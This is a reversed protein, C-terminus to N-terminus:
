EELLQPGSLEIKRPKQEEPVVVGLHVKLIGDEMEGGTVEVNRALSYTKVFNKTSIGKLVYDREDRDADGTIKLTRGVVEVSVQDKNFGAVAVELTFETESRKVLNFFPFSNPSSPKMMTGHSLLSDFRDFLQDFTTVYNM